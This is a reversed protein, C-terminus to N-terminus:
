GNAWFCWKGFTAVVLVTATASKRGRTEKDKKFRDACSTIMQEVATDVPLM